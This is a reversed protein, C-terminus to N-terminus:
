VPQLVNIKKMKVRNLNIQLDNFDEQKYCCIM